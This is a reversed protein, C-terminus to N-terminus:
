LRKALHASSCNTVAFSPLMFYFFSQEDLAGLGVSVSESKLTSFDDIIEVIVDRLLAIEAEYKDQTNM